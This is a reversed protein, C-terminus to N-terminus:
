EEESGDSNEEEDEEDEYLDDLYGQELKWQFLAEDQLMQEYLQEPTRTDEWEYTIDQKERACAIELIRKELGGGSPTVGGAQAAPKSQEAPKQPQAPKQAGAAEPVLSRVDKEYPILKDYLKAGAGETILIVKERPKSLIFSRPRNMHQALFEATELDHGSLYLIHDCNNLITTGSEKSYRSWLQSLSQIIVSVSIQRSRIVSIVNDFEEMRPGAAFDDLILRVPVPLRGDEMSDATEILTQLLQMSFLNALIHFSTDNDSSNVFLVTKEKGISAMDITEPNSFIADYEKYDFPDLAENAFEMISYWMKEVNQSKSFEEYRRAAFSDPKEKSWSELLDKGLSTNFKKHLTVVSHMNQDEKPLAELVFGILVAIYRVAAKEWFPESKDLTPVLAQSIRKVDKENINGRSDVRVLSLPNYGVSQEPRVFDLVKVQYGLSELYSRFIRCLLGKTDSVVISGDPSLLNQYIYGGTKGSGAGGIILDNNNLGSIRPDNSVEAGQAFIRTGAKGNNGKKEMAAREKISQVKCGSNMSMTEKGEEMKGKDMAAAEKAEKLKGRDMAAAEKAMKMGQEKDAQKM